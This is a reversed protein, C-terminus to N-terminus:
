TSMVVAGELQSVSVAQASGNSPRENREFQGSSRQQRWQRQRHAEGRGSHWRQQLARQASHQHTHELQLIAAAVENQLETRALRNHHTPTHQTRQKSGAAGTNTRQQAHQVAHLRMQAVAATLRECSNALTATAASVAASQTLSLSHLAAFPLSAVSLASPSRTAAGTASSGSPASDDAEDDAPRQQQVPGAQAQTLFPQQPPDADELQGCSVVRCM